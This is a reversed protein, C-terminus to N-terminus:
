RVQINQLLQGEETLLEANEQIVNMHMNLLAEEEEFLNQVTRHLAAVEESDATNNRNEVCLTLTFQVVCVVCMMMM